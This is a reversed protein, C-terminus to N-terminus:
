LKYVGDLVNIIEGLFYLEEDPNEIILTTDASLVMKTYNQYMKTLAQRIETPNARETILNNFAEIPTTTM